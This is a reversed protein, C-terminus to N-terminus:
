QEELELTDPTFKHTCSPCEIETEEDNILDNFLKDGTRWKHLCKPCTITWNINM